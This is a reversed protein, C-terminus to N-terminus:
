LLSKFTQLSLSKGDIIYLLNVYRILNPKEWVIIQHNAWLKGIKGVGFSYMGILLIYPLLDITSYPSPDIAM